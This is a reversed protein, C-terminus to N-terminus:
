AMIRHMACLDEKLCYLLLALANSSLPMSHKTVRFCIGYMRPWAQLVFHPGAQKSYPGDHLSRFHPLPPGCFRSM